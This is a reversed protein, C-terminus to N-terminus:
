SFVPTIHNTGNDINVSHLELDLSVINQPIYITAPSIGPSSTSMILDFSNIQINTALIGYPSSYRIDDTNFVIVVSAGSGPIGFPMLNSVNAANTAWTYRFGNSLVQSITVVLTNGPIPYPVRQGQLNDVTLSLDMTESLPVAQTLILEPTVPELTCTDQGFDVIKMTFSHSYTGSNSFYNQNIPIFALTLYILGYYLVDGYAGGTYPNSVEALNLVYHIHPITLRGIKIRILKEPVQTQSLVLQSYQIPITGNSYGNASTTMYGSNIYLRQVTLPLPNVSSGSIVGSSASVSIPQNQGNAKFPDLLIGQGILKKLSGKYYNDMNVPTEPVKPNVIPINPVANKLKVVPINRIM